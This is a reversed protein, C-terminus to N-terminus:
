QEYLLYEITKPFFTHELRAIKQAVSLADDTPGIKCYAQLIHAGEDYHENVYHITIGTETDKARIVAEHVHMGYMGKGGYGPLLAPHINIIKDPFLNLLSLPIKWLFGALVILDPHYENLQEALLKGDLTTRDIILFPINYERAINLVGAGANNCVILNVKAGGAKNFYQIIAAANKGRGSAFLIISKERVTGSM